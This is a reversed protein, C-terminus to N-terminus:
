PAQLWFSKIYKELRAASECLRTVQEWVSCVQLAFERYVIQNKRHGSIRIGHYTKGKSIINEWPSVIQEADERGDYAAVVWAETSDCPIVVCVKAECGDLWGTILAELHARYGEEAEAHEACPLVVPCMKRIAKECELPHIEGKEACKTARCLCHVEKEKRSVDGDMQVLLLDLEPKVGTMIGDLIKGNDRCWKWVGKWGNGYEGRLNDEPQLLYFQNDEGTIRDIVNKLIIYDTPGECVIGINKM